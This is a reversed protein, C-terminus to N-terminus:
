NEADSTSPVSCLVLIDRVNVRVDDRHHREHYHPCPNHRRYYNPDYYNLLVNVVGDVRVMHLNVTLELVNLWSQCVHNVIWDFHDLSYPCQLTKLLPQVPAFVKGYAVLWVYM